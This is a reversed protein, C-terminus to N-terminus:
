ERGQSASSWTRRCSHDFGALDLQERELPRLVQDSAEVLASCAWAQAHAIIIVPEKASEQSASPGWVVVLQQADDRIKSGPTCQHVTETEAVQENLKKIQDGCGNLNM